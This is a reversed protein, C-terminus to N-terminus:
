EGIVRCKVTSIDIDVLADSHNFLYSVGGSIDFGEIDGGTMVLAEYTNAFSESLTKPWKMSEPIEFAHKFHGCEHAMVTKFVELTMPMYSQQAVDSYAISFEKSPVVYITILPNNQNEYTAFTGQPSSKPKKQLQVTVPDTVGQAHLRAIEELIIVKYEAFNDLATPSVPLYGERVEIVCEYEESALAYCSLNHIINYDDPKEDSPEGVTKYIYSRTALRWEQQENDNVEKDYFGMLHFILSSYLRAVQVVFDVDTIATDIYITATFNNGVKKICQDAKGRIMNFTITLSSGDPLDDEELILSYIEDMVERRYGSHQYHSSVNLKGVKYIERFEM